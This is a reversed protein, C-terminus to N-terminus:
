PHGGYRGAVAVVVADPVFRLTRSGRCGTKARMAAYPAEWEKPPAPPSTPPPHSRFAFTQELATRECQRLPPGCRRALSRPCATCGNMFFIRTATSPDGAERSAARRANSRALTCSLLLAAGTIPSTGVNGTVASAYVDTIGTKSLIAFEGAVALRVPPDHHFHVLPNGCRGHRELRRWQQSPETSAPTNRGM